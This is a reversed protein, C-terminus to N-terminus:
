TSSGDSNAFLAYTQGDSERNVMPGPQTTETWQGSGSENMFCCEEIVEPTRWVRRVNRFVVVAAVAATAAVPMMFVGTYPWFWAGEGPRTIPAFSRIATAYTPTPLWPIACTRACFACAASFLMTCAATHSTHSLRKAAARSKM